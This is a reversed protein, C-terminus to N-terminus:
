FPQGRRTVSIGGSNLAQTLRPIIEQRQAPTMDILLRRMEQAQQEGWQRSRVADEILRHAGELAAVSQPAPPPPAPEPERPRSVAGVGRADLEERLVRALEARLPVPPLGDVPPVPPTSLPPLGGDLLTCFSSDSAALWM